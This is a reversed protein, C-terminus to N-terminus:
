LSEERYHTSEVSSGAEVLNGFILPFRKAPSADFEGGASDKAENVVLLAECSLITALVSIVRCVLRSIGPM